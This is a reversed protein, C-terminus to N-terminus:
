GMWRIRWGDEVWKDMWVQGGVWRDMLGDMKDEMWEGAM